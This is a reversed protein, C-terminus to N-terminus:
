CCYESRMIGGGTPLAPYTDHLETRVDTYTYCSQLSEAPDMNDLCEQQDLDLWMFHPLDCIENAGDVMCVNDRRNSCVTSNAHSM